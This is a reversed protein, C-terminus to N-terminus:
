LEFKEYSEELKHTHEVLQGSMKSMSSAYEVQQSSATNVEELVFATSQILEYINNLDKYIVDKQTTIDKILTSVRMLENDIAEMQSQVGMFTEVNDQVVPLQDEFIVIAKDVETLTVEKKKNIQKVRDQIQVAADQIQSSLIRVEDAVVAFGKGAEGARAAEISANLALLNTQRNISTILEIIGNIGSVEGGFDQIYTYIQKTLLVNDQTQNTLAMLKPKSAESMERTQTSAAKVNGLVQGIHDMHDSLNQTLTLANQVSKTEERADQTVTGIAGQVEVASSATNQAIEKLSVMYDNVQGTAGQANAVIQRLENSMKKFGELLLTTERNTTMVEIEEVENLKGQEVKHVLEVLVKLPKTIISAVLCAIICVLISVIIILAMSKNKMQGMDQLLLEEPANMIISWGSDMKCLSLLTNQKTYQTLVGERSYIDSQLVEEVNKDLPDGLLNEDTSFIIKNKGDVITVPIDEHMRAESIINTFLTSDINFAMIRKKNSEDDEIAKFVVIQKESFGSEDLAVWVMKNSELIEAYTESNLFAESTLYRTVKIFNEDVAMQRQFLSIGDSIIQVSRVYGNAGLIQEVYKGLYGIAELRQEKEEGELITVLKNIYNDQSMNVLNQSPLLTLQNITYNIQNVMQQSYMGVSANLTKTVNGTVLSTLIVMPILSLILLVMIMQGLLRQHKITDRIATRISRMSKM